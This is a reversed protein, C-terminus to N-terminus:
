KFLADLESIPKAKRPDPTLGGLDVSLGNKLQAAPVSQQWVKKSRPHEVQVVWESADDTKIAALGDEGTVAFFPTDVVFIYGLMSDHINCGLVVKGATDFKIPDATTGHYLRLEFRKAPSFSYVHHRVDDSNPFSVLTGTQVAIVNPSFQLNRQDMAATVPAPSSQVAPSHATLDATRNVSRVSVVADQLPVTNSTVYVKLVAGHVGAAVLVCLVLALCRGARYLSTSFPTLNNKVM